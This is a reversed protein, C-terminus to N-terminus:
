PVDCGDMVSLRTSSYSRTLNWRGSACTWCLEKDLLFSTVVAFLRLVLTGEFEVDTVFPAVLDHKKQRTQKRWPTDKGCRAIQVCILGGASLGFCERLMFDCSKVV